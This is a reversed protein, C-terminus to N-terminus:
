REPLVRERENVCDREVWLAVERAYVLAQLEDLDISLGRKWRYLMNGEWAHLQPDERFSTRWKRISDLEIQATEPALQNENSM